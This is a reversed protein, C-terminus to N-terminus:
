GQELLDGLKEGFPKQEPQQAMRKADTKTKQVLTTRGVKSDGKAKHLRVKATRRWKRGAKARTAKSSIKHQHHKM